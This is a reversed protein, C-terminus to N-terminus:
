AHYEFVMASLTNSSSAAALVADGTTLQGSRALHRLNLPIDSAFCHGVEAVLGTHLRSVSGPVAMALLQRTAKGFNPTVIHSIHDVPGVAARYTASRMAPLIKRARVLDSGGSDGSWHESASGLLRFTEDGPADTVLCSVAGDSFVTQSIPPYRTGSQVKDVTVLLVSEAAGSAVLGHAVDVGTAFNACASGSVFLARTSPLDTARQYDRLWESPTIDGVSDTCV